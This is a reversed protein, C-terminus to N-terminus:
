TRKSIASMTSVFQSGVERYGGNRSLKAVSITDDLSALCQGDSVRETVISRHRNLWSAYLPAGSRGCFGAAITNLTYLTRLPLPLPLRPNTDRMTTFVGRILASLYPM